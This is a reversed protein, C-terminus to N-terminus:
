GVHSTALPPTTSEVTSEVTRGTGQVTLVSCPAHHMVHNSVSGLLIESLGSRGRRGVLILDVSMQAAIACILSAPDGFQQRMDAQVGAATAQDVFSRLWDRDRDEAKSWIESYNQLMPTNLTSYLADVGPYFSSSYGEDFTLGIHVFLLTARHLQALAIAQSVLVPATQPEVAVLIRQFM